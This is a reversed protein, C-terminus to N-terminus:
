RRTTCGMMRYLPCFSFVATTLLIVGLVVSGWYIWPTAYLAISASATLPLVLLVLGLLARISRDVLGVNM